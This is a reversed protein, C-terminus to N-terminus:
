RFRQPSNVGIIGGLSSCILIILMKTFFGGVTFSRVFFIGGLLTVAFIIIGCLLGTKLGNRKRRKAAVFSAAFCGACLAASSMVTFAGDSLDIVTAIASFILSTVFVAGICAFISYVVATIREKRLRQAPTKRM